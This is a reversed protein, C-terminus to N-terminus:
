YNEKVYCIMEYERKLKFYIKVPIKRQKTLNMIYKVDEVLWENEYNKPLIIPNTISDTDYNKRLMLIKVKSGVGMRKFINSYMGYQTLTVKKEANKVIAIHPSRTAPVEIIEFDSIMYDNVIGEKKELDFYESIDGTGVNAVFSWDKGYRKVKKKANYFDSVDTGHSKMFDVFSSDATILGRKLLILVRGLNEQTIKTQFEGKKPMGGCFLLTSYDAELVFSHDRFYITPNGDLYVDECYKKLCERFEKSGNSIDYPTIGIVKTLESFYNANASLLAFDAKDKVIIEIM